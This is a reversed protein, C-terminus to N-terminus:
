IRDAIRPSLLWTSVTRTVSAAPFVPAADGPSLRVISEVAGPEGVACGARSVGKSVPVAPSAKVAFSVGVM